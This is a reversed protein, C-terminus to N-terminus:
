NYQRSFKRSTLWLAALVLLGLGTIVAGLRFSDPEYRFEVTHNGAPLQVARFLFDAKFIPVDTGDISAKWGPYWVDALRLWGPEDSEVQVVIRKTRENVIQVQADANSAGQWEPLTEGEVVLCNTIGNMRREVAQWAAEEGAVPEACGWWSVREGGRVSQFVVGDAERPDVREVLRVGMAQLWPEQEDPPIEGVAEMWRAYRAPVMPDFNNALPVGDLLNINALQVTRLNIWDELPRFDDFRFFRRYTLVYEDDPPIYLRGGNLAALEGPLSAANKEFLGANTVPNLGWGASVLDLVVFAIVLIEWRTRAPLNEKPPISLAFLLTGLLWLGTAATAPFMPLNLDSLGVWGFIGALTIAVAAAVSRRLNRRAPEAVPRWRDIGLGALMSLAFVPWIMWRAPAQFMDFTPVHHYLWPFIPAFNGLSLVAGVLTTSLLFVTLAIPKGERRSRIMLWFLTAIALIVPLLGIYVAGEWYNAYGNFNGTAPNGFFNPSFFGTFRWPWFSYTMAHDFAVASARQSERLYEYTPLLQVAAVAAALIISGAYRLGARITGRWRDRQWGGVVVWLGAFVLTYWTLQAHGSLLQLAALATLAPVVPLRTQTETSNQLDPAAIRSAALVIWPMWAGAWIMSFFEVRAVLYGSLGFSLGAVTQALVSLRYRRALAAMGLGAFILHLVVLLTQSWALGPVGGVAAFLFSIWGPPYFLAIQYNAALPAGMGNLANWLPLEGALIQEWAYARWPVFQLSPTGWFLVQGTFLSEAFLIIPALVIPLAPLLRVSRIREILFSGNAARPTKIDHTRM